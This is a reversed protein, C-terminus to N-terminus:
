FSKNQLQIGIKFKAFCFSVKRAHEYNNFLFSNKSCFQARRCELYALFSCSIMWFLVLIDM